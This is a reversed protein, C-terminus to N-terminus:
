WSGTGSWSSMPSRGVATAGCARDRDGTFPWLARKPLLDAVLWRCGACSHTSRLRMSAPANVLRGALLSTLRSRHRRAAVQGASAIARPASVSLEGAHSLKQRHRPSLRRQARDAALLPDAPDVSSRAACATSRCTSPANPLPWVKTAVAVSNMARSMPESRARPWCDVPNGTRAGDPADTEDGRRCSAGTLALLIFAGFKVFDRHRRQSGASLPTSIPSRKLINGLRLMCNARSSRSQCIIM